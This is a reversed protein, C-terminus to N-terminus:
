EYRLAEIPDLRSAKLAPYMGFFIGVAASFTFGLAFSWWPLSVPFGALQNVVLGIASGLLIGLVGGLSTLFVAELLFQLLVEGRRAGIAKRIGIERTRETVSITMIAMVGIGGVMLAISSIVVLSLVVARTLQDVIKMIVDSTVIDFDNPEDLKLRHRSRMVQEVERILQERGVGERPVVAISLFRLLLGRFRPPDYLKDYTSVPIVAFEDPDGFLPSPRKALTGVVTFETTGLRIRKGVPDMAPFLTSAPAYGLVVVQRRHTDEYDTFFRGNELAIYNTEAWNASTGIIAMQKTSHDRYTIREIRTGPGGGLQLSVMAASPAGSLIAKADEETLNPRKLVELFSIGSAWSSFGLKQVYVTDAGMQRILQQMQDGFGRILATMAVISSVGIVVGLITLASRLKNGRLTDTAMHLIEALLGARLTATSSASQRGTASM